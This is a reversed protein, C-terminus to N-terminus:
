TFPEWIDEDIDTIFFSEFVNLNDIFKDRYYIGSNVKIALYNCELFLREENTFNLLLEEILKHLQSLEKEKINERVLLVKLEDPLDKLGTGLFMHSNATYYINIFGDFTSIEEIILDTNFKQLLKIIEQIKTYEHRM